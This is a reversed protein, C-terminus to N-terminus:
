DDECDDGQAQILFAVRKNIEEKGKEELLAKFEESNRDKGLALDELYNWQIVRKGELLRTLEEIDGSVSVYAETLEDEPKKFKEALQTM